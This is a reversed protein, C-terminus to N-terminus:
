RRSGRVAMVDAVALSSVCSEGGYRSQALAVSVFVCVGSVVVCRVSQVCGRCVCRCWLVVVGRVGQCRRVQLEEKDQVQFARCVEDIAARKALSESAKQFAAASLMPAALLRLPHALLSDLGVGDFGFARQQVSTGKGRQQQQYLPAHLRAPAFPTVRSGSGRDPVSSHAKRHHLSHTTSAAVASLAM